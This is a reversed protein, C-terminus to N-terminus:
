LRYASSRMAVLYSTTSVPPLDKPQTPPHCQGRVAPPEAWLFPSCIPRMRLTAAGSVPNGSADYCFGVCNFANARLGFLMEFIKTRIDPHHHHPPPRKYHQDLHDLLVLFCRTPLAAPSALLKDHLVALLGAAALALENGGGEAEAPAPVPAETVYM